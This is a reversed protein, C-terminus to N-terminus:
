IESTNYCLAGFLLVHMVQKVKLAEWLQRDSVGDPLSGNKFQELLAVSKALKEQVNIVLVYNLSKVYMMHM